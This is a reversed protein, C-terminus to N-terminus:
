TEREIGTRANVGKSYYHKKEKMETVLDAMRLVKGGAYRGTLVLEVHPMKQSILGVIDNESILGISAAVNIEDAIVIDHKGKTLVASMRKVGAMAMRKDIEKPAKKILCGRGYQEIDFNKKGKFFKVESYSGSKMFQGVYVRYGAGLARIALGLAATTKGKGNGTYVQIYGKKLKM